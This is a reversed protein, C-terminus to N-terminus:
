FSALRGLAPERGQSHVQRGGCAPAPATSMFYQNTQVLRPYDPPLFPSVKAHLNSKNQVDKVGEQWTGRVGGQTRWSMPLLCPRGRPLWPCPLQRHRASSRLSPWAM